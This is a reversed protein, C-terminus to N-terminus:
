MCQSNEISINSMEFFFFHMFPMKRVEKKEENDYKWKKLCSAHLLYFKHRTDPKRLKYLSHPVCAACFSMKGTCHM